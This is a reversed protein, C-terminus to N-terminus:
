GAHTIFARIQGPRVELLSQDSVLVHLQQAQIRGHHVLASHLDATFILIYSLSLSLSLLLSIVRESPFPKNLKHKYLLYTRTSSNSALLLWYSDIPTRAKM